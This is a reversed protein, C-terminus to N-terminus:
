DLDNRNIDKFFNETNVFGLQKLKKLHPLYEKDDEFDYPDVDDWLFSIIWQYWRAPAPYKKLYNLREDFNLNQQDLWEFLIMLHSEGSGMRWGISYPHFNPAYVWPPPIDGFKELLIKSEKIYWEENAYRGM